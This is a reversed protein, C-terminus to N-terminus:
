QEERPVFLYGGLQLKDLGPLTHVLKGIVADMKWIDSLRSAEDLDDSWLENVEGRLLTLERLSVFVHPLVTAQIQM